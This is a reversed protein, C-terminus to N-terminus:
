FRPLYSKSNFESWRQLRRRADKPEALGNERIHYDLEDFMATTARIIAERLGLVSGYGDLYARAIRRLKRAFVRDSRDVIPTCILICLTRAVDDVARGWAANTWDIVGSVEGRDVLVNLPHYDMHLLCSGDQRETNTHLQCHLEGFGYSSSGDWVDLLSKGDVWEVIMFPHSAFVGSALVSPVPLGAEGALNMAQVEFEIHASRDPSFVRLVASDDGLMVKWIRADYGGTQVHLVLFDGLNVYRLLDNPNLEAM